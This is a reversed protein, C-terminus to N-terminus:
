ALKDESAKLQNKLEKLNKDLDQSKLLKETQSYLLNSKESLERKFLDVQSRYEAVKSELTRIMGINGDLAEMKGQVSLKLTQM